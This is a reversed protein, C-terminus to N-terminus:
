LGEGQLLVEMSLEVSEPNYIALDVMMAKRVQTNIEIHEVADSRDIDLDV